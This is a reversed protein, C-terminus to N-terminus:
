KPIINKTLWHSREAAGFISTMKKRESDEMNMLKERIM